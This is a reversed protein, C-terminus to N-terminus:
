FFSSRGGADKRNGAGALQQMQQGSVIDEKDGDKTERVVGQRADGNCYTLLM